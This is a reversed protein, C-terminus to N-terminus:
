QEEKEERKEARGRWGAMSTHLNMVRGLRAFFADPLVGRLLLVLRLSRPRKICRRGRVLAGEVVAKAIVDHSSVRPFLLGGLGSLRAGAFLGSRLFMPHVSSYRLGGYGAAWAEERLAETLGFVGWKSACYAALGPVGVLGAASSINVIHGRGQAQLFPLLVHITNLTGLLNIEVTRSREAAPQELFFGPAMRGANNVLIDVGGMASLSQEAAESVAQQDGVNCIVTHVRGLGGLDRAARELEKGDIDWLSVEAGRRLLRRGIEYGIGRAGGTVVARKGNLEM